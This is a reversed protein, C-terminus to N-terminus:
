LTAAQGATGAAPTILQSYSYTTYPIISVKQLFVGFSTWFLRWLCGSSRLAGEFGEVMGDQHASLQPGRMYRCTTARVDARIQWLLPLKM